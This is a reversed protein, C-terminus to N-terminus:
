LDAENLSHFIGSEQKLRLSAAQQLGHHLASPVFRPNYSYLLGAEVLRSTREGPHLASPVFGPTNFSHFSTSLGITKYYKLINIADQVGPNAGKASCGPSRM